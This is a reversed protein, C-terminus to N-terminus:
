RPEAEREMLAILGLLGGWQYFRDSDPRDCGLGTDASYNEHVHGHLRWEHLLLARSKDALQKAAGTEGARRLALYVLFNVPAWIKGRWYNQDAFAPDNRPTVPIVWEGWFEEENFLHEDVLRRIQAPTAAGILLPYFSTPSIRPSPHGSSLDRNRFIGSHEDWLSGLRETLQAAHARLERADDHRGLEDAFGAIAVSDAIHLSMQGVDALLMLGSAADFPIDDYMPSNDLGFEFKAGLLQGVGNTEEWTGVVPPFHNSGLCIFGDRLRHEAYWRNSRYLDPYVEELFWREQYRRHIQEVVLGGVQPMSRDLTICGTGGIWNPIFGAPAAAKAMAIANAFALERSGVSALLAAFFTDWGFLVVGGFHHTNWDRSVPTVVRRLGPDYITNWAICTQIAEAVEADDGFRRLEAHSRAQAAAVVRSIEEVSRQRGSAFGVPGDLRVAFYPTQTQVHFEDEVLPNAAFVLIERLPCRAAIVGPARHEISGPRNWLLGTEAVLVAHRSLDHEPTILLLLDEGDTASQVRLRLDRWELRLDTYSGDYARLAPRCTAERGPAIAMLAEKLYAPKWYDKVGLNIAFGEPLLVHSLLSRTNWTNWGHALHATLAADNTIAM